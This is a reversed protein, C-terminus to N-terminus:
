KRDAMSEEPIKDEATKPKPKTKAPPPSSLMEKQHKLDALQTELSSLTKKYEEVQGNLKEIYAKNMEYKPDINKLSQNAIRLKEKVAAIEKEKAAIDDDVTPASAKKAGEVNTLDEDPVWDGAANYGM